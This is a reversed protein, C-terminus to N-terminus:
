DAEVKQTCKYFFDFMLYKLVSLIASSISFLTSSLLPTILPVQAEYDSLKCQVYFSQPIFTNRIICFSFM